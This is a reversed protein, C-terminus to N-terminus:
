PLTTVMPKSSVVPLLARVEVQPKSTVSASCVFKTYVVEVGIKPFVQKSLQRLLDCDSADLWINSESTLSIPAWAAPFIPIDSATPLAAGNVRAALEGKSTFTTQERVVEETAPAPAALAIAASIRTSLRTTHSGASTSISEGERGLNAPDPARVFPAQASPACRAEVILSPHVGVATLIARVKRTFSECTYSVPEGRFEFQVRQLRWIAKVFQEDTAGEPAIVVPSGPEEQAAVGLPSGAVICAILSVSFHRPPMPLKCARM